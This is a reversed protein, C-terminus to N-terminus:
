PCYCPSSPVYEDDAAAQKVVAAFIATMHDNTYSNGSHDWAADFTINIRSGSRTLQDICDININVNTFDDESNQNDTEFANVLLALVTPPANKPTLQVYDRGCIEAYVIEDDNTWIKANYRNNSNFPNWVSVPMRAAQSVLM